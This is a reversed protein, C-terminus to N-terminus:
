GFIEYLLKFEVQMNIVLDCIKIVLFYYGAKLQSMSKLVINIVKKLILKPTRVKLNRFEIEFKVHIKVIEKSGLFNAMKKDGTIRIINQM